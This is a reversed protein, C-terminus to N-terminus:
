VGGDSRTAGASVGPAGRPSKLFNRALLRLENQYSWNDDKTTVCNWLIETYMSAALHRCFTAAEEGSRLWKRRQVQEIMALAADM